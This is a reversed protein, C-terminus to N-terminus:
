YASRTRMVEVCTGLLIRMDLWFSWNNVYWLDAEVREAMLEVRSTEGRYGNVQAWGTIGPKVHHRFAYNAIMSGYEDDHALAHPRPGVLSMDGKLVNFLQPLEDISSRRLVRGITTVRPDRRKAQAVAPGDEMVRMTRFKYIVFPRGNFGKRRQRFILPGPSDLKIAIAVVAMLPCLLLITISAALLDVSRKLARETKTLPERQLYVSFAAAASVQSRDIVSTISRDPLLRAPLPSYRLRERVIELLETSSWHVAVIVEEADSARAVELARDIKSLEDSSWALSGADRDVTLPDPGVAVPRAQEDWPKTEVVSLGKRRGRGARMAM